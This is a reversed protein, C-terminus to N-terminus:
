RYPTRSSLAMTGANPEKERDTFLTLRCGSIRRAQEAVLQYTRVGTSLSMRGMWSKMSRGLEVEPSDTRVAVTQTRCCRCGTERM